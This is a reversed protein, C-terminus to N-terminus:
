EEEVLLPLDQSADKAICNSVVLERAPTRQDTKSSIFRPVLVTHYTLGKAKYLSIMEEDASNTLVFRIGRKDLMLMGEAVAHHDRASFMNRGYKISDGKVDSYYPPDLFVFDGPEASSLTNEWATAQINAQALAASANLIDETSPLVTSSRPSGFPVNFKGDKNVRYLGNWCTRNLFIFEAANVRPLQANYSRRIIQYYEARDIAAEYAANLEELHTAVRLANERVAIFTRILQLNTDGLIALFPRSQTRQLYFFVAGSGLFPEIYKGTFHPLRKGMRLLFPQKGGAWKLFPRALKTRNYWANVQEFYALNQRM